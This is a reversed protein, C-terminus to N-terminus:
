CYDKLKAFNNVMTDFMVTNDFMIKDIVLISNEKKQRVLNIMSIINNKIENINEREKELKAKEHVRNIDNNLGNGINQNIIVIKDLNTKESEQISKLLVNLKNLLNDYHNKKQQALIPINLIDKKNEIIKEIMKGHNAQNRELVRYISEKVTKIDDCINENKEYLTELDIIIYIKKNTDRSFNKISYIDITDDRRIPLIYNKYQIALKYPINQVCYRLRKLQRYLSKLFENDDKSIDKLKIDQRYNNQLQEEVGDKPLLNINANYIDEINHPIEGYEDAINEGKEIDISKLKYMNDRKDKIEITYKSPIYLYFTEAIKPSYLEVFFLSNDLIFYKNIYFGKSILFDDLKSLSLPM